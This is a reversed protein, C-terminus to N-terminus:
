LNTTLSIGFSLKSELNVGLDAGLWLDSILPIYAGLNYSVPTIMFKFDKKPSFGVGVQFFNLIDGRKPSVYKSFSVGLTGAPFWSTTTYLPQHIGLKINPAWWVMGVKQGEYNHVVKFEKVKLRIAKEEGDLEYLSAHMKKKGTDLNETELIELAFRQHLIYGLACNWKSGYSRWFKGTIEIHYDAYEISFSEGELMKYCKEVSCGDISLSNGDPVSSTASVQHSQQYDYEAKLEAYASVRDNYDDLLGKYKAQVERLKKRTFVGYTEAAELDTQALALSEGREFNSTILDRVERLGWLIALGALLAFFIRLIAKWHKKLFSKM